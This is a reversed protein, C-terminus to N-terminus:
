KLRWRILFLEEQVVRQALKGAVDAILADREADIQDQTAFLERRLRNREKELEGVRKQGELKEKLPLSATAARRAEKIRRDVERIEAELTSKRDDAWSELKNVEADFFKSNRGEIKELIDAVQTSLVGELRPRIAEMVHADVPEDALVQGNVKLLRAADEPPYVEGSDTMVATLLYDEALEMAEVTLGKMLLWGSNGVLPEIAVINGEYGAYDLLLTATPSPRETAAARVWRALPHEPRYLHAEKSRRPLEYRGLPIDTRDALGLPLDLLNFGGDRDFEAFGALVHETVTMLLREHQKLAGRSAEDLSKLKERVEEDFNEILRTRTERMEENIEDRLEAQLLDFQTQIETTTRCTQYIEAIRKEFDVGSGISGLIEDSAGFVGEFLKFKEDLIKYVREDAANETNLFNLVVVDHAQGYRHCRGIRQEIRQPNWPLDYNVVLSCFQLNIGEAGAETAIMITAQEQFYDVIASRMDATPSGTVRDTGLHRQLWANYIERSRPDSNTGNFLVIEAPSYAELTLLQVLYDQTKRSETFIIAKRAAGLDTAKEFAKELGTLLKEGKANKTVSEALALYRELDEKELRMAQLQDTGMTPNPKEAEAEWEEEDLVGEMEAELGELFAETNAQEQLTEALRNAMTRLAGAIAFTSSALLKRLILTILSRQGSPLAELNPRALYATVENYLEQEKEAPTFREVIASRKTYKVYQMVQKRLTRHCVPQLRRKLDHFSQEQKLNGYQERFSKLNGFVHEDIISVLGYLELLSNQLPTATLLIKPSDKLANKLTNAIKNDKKYVNRLRHAEDIVVLDWQIQAIDAEKDRAFHYSCIVIEDKVFFPRRNGLAVAAKYSKSELIVSPLFFKELLEQNWQKRLNAPTIILIRRKKEAWKQSLVLGAEITKGLGVEDALIAGKSLPSKFAFLAADVQHPNLDVQANAVAGAFKETSDIPHRKGLEWAYYKAHYDTILSMTAALSPNQNLLGFKAFGQWVDFM